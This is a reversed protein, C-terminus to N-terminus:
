TAGVTIREWMARIEPEPDALDASSAAIERTTRAGDYEPWAPHGERAFRLLAGAFEDAVAEREAGDGTFM